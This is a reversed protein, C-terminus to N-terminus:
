RGALIRDRLVIQAFGARDNQSTVLAAAQDQRDDVLVGPVADRRVPRQDMRQRAGAHM